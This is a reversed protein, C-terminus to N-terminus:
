HHAHTCNHLFISLGACRLIAVPPRDPVALVVDVVVVVAVVMLLYKANVGFVLFFSVSDYMMVATSVFLTRSPQDHNIIIM